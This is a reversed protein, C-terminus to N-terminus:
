RRISLKKASRKAGKPKGGGNGQDHPVTTTFTVTDCMKPMASPAGGDVTGKVTWTYVRGDGRGSREGRMSVDTSATPNGTGAGGIADTAPDTNGAGNEESTAMDQADYVAEDHKGTVVVTADDGTTTDDVMDRDVDTVSITATRVKHNPPWMEIPGTYVIDGEDNGNVICEARQTGKTDHFGGNGAVRASATGGGVAVVVFAALAALTIRTKM